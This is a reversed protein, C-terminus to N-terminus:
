GRSNSLQYGLVSVHPPLAKLIQCCIRSYDPNSNHQISWIIIHHPLSHILKRSTTGHLVSNNFKHVVCVLRMICLCADYWSTNYHQEIYFSVAILVVM